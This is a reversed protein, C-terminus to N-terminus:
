IQLGAQKAESAFDRRIAKRLAEAMEGASQFREVPKKQLCINTLRTASAPLEKRMTRAGKHKVHVIEYTVAALSDGNFPLYGTLLQYFMVGLSFLDSSADVKKGLVQEPSMYLPSGLIEGTRTHAHDVVRAIGFDTIRVQFPDSSFLINGPKIDRHVIKQNHAYALAEALELAIRYVTFIPLLHEPQVFNSLPQGKALDMALYAYGEQEGVDFVPVINPHNLRGAAEAERFFRGRIDELEVDSFGTCQITKIAVDRSILPDYGLYVTGSAGRGLEQRVQYRGFTPLQVLQGTPALNLTKDLAIPEDEDKSEELDATPKQSLQENSAKLRKAVDKFRRKRRYIERWALSALQWNQTSEFQEGIVYLRDLLAPSTRCDKAYDFAQQFDGTDVLSEALALSVRDARVQVKRLHSRQWRWILMLVLSVGLYFLIPGVPLWLSASIQGGLQVGIILLGLCVVGVLVWRVNAMPVVLCLYLSLVFIVLKEIVPWWIPMVLYAHDSLSALTQAAEELSESGDRGLLIWSHLEDLNLAAGLSIQRLPARIGSIEGYIPVFGADSGVPIWREQIKLGIHRRWQVAPPVEEAGERIQESVFFQTWFTAMYRDEDSVLLYQRDGQLAPLPTYRLVPSLLDPSVSPPSHWLWNALLPPYQALPGPTKNIARYQGPVRDRLGLVVRESNLYAVLKERRQLLDAVSRFLHDTTRRGQQIEALLGEAEPQTLAVPQELVIGLLPSNSSSEAPQAFLKDMLDALRSAGPLDDLWHDYEIAPVHIVTLDTTVPPLTQFQLALRLMSQELRATVGTFWSPLTPEFMLWVTLIVVLTRINCAKIILATFRGM